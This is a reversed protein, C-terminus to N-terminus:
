TGLALALGQLPMKLVLIQPFAFNVIKYRAAIVQDTTDPAIHVCLHIRVRQV